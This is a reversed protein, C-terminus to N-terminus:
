NTETEQYSKWREATPDADEGIYTCAIKLIQDGSKLPEDFEIKLGQGQLRAEIRLCGGVDAALHWERTEAKLDFQNM